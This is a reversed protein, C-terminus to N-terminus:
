FYKKRNQPDSLYNKSPASYPYIKKGRPFSPEFNFVRFNVALMNEVHIKMDILKGRFFVTKDSVTSKQPDPYVNHRPRCVHTTEVILDPFAILLGVHFKWSREFCVQSVSPGYICFSCVKKQIQTLLRCFSRRSARLLKARMEAPLVMGSVRWWESLVFFRSRINNTVTLRGRHFSSRFLAWFCWKKARRRRSLSDIFYELIQLLPCLPYGKPEPRSRSDM